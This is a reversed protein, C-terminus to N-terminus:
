RLKDAETYFRYTSTPDLDDVNDGRANFPFSVWKAAALFRVSGDYFLVNYGAPHYGPNFKSSSSNYSDWAAAANLRVLTYLRGDFSNVQYPPTSPYAPSYDAVVGTMLNKGEVYRYFYSSCPYNETRKAGGQQNWGFAPYRYGGFKTPQLAPCYFVQPNSLYNLEYLRGLGIFGHPTYYLYQGARDDLQTAPSGPTGVKDPYAAGFGLPAQGNYDGAYVIILAGLQRLNSMCAAQKARDRASKLAPALLAALVAVIAVVVLLEILTFGARV